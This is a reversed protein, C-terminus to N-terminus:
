LSEGMESLTFALWYRLQLRHPVIQGGNQRVEDRGGWWCEGSGGEGHNDCQNDKSDGLGM